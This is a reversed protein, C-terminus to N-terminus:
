REASAVSARLWILITLNKGRPHGRSQLFLLPLARQDIQWERAELLSAWSEDIERLILQSSRVVVEVHVVSVAEAHIEIPPHELARHRRRLLLRLQISM